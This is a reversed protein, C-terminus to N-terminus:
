SRTLRAENQKCKYESVAFCIFHQFYYAKLKDSMNDWFQQGFEIRQISRGKLTCVVFDCWAYENVSFNQILALM